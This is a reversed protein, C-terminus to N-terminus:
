CYFRAFDQTIGV